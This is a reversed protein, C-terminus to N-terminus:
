KPMSLGAAVGVGRHRQDLAAQLREGVQPGAAEVPAEVARRVALLQVLQQIRVGQRLLAPQRGGLALALRLRGERRGTALVGSHLRRDVAQLVATQVPDPQVARVPELPRDAEGDEGGVEVPDPLDQAFAFALSHPVLAFPRPVLSHPQLPLAVPRPLVAALRLM